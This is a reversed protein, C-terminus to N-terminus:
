VLDTFGVGRLQGLDQFLNNIEDKTAKLQIDQRLSNVDDNVLAVNDEINGARTRLTEVTGQLDTLGQEAAAESMDRKLQEVDDTVSQIDRRISSLQEDMNETYQQDQQRNADSAQFSAPIRNVDRTLTRM